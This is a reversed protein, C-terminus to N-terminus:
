IDLLDSLYENTEQPDASFHGQVGVTARYNSIHLNLVM